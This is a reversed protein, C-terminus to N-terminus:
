FGATVILNVFHTLSRLTSKESFLSASPLYANSFINVMVNWEPSYVFILCGQIGMSIDWSWLVPRVLSWCLFLCFSGNKAPPFRLHYLQKLLCSQLKRCLYVYKWWTAWCNYGRPCVWIFWFRCGCLLKYLLVLLVKNKGRHTHTHEHTVTPMCTGCPYISIPLCGWHWYKRGVKDSVPAKQPNGVAYM